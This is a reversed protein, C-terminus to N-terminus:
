GALCGGAGRSLPFKVVGDTPRHGVSSYTPSEAQCVDGQGRSLPFKALSLFGKIKVTKKHNLFFDKWIEHFHELFHRM